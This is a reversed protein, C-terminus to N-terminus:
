EDNVEIDLIEWRRFKKKKLYIKVNMNSHAYNCKERWYDEKKFEKIFDSRSVIGYSFAKMVAEIYQKSIIDDM